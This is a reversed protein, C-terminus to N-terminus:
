EAVLLKRFYTSRINKTDLTIKLIYSGPRLSSFDSKWEIVHRGSDYSGTGSMSCYKGIVDFLDISVNYSCEALSIPIQVLPTNRNIPNPYTFGIINEKTYTVEKIYDATGYHIRFNHEGESLTLSNITRMDTLSAEKDVEIVLQKDNLGFGTNDWSITIRREGAVNGSWSYNEATKVMDKSLNGETTQRMIWDFTSVGQPMPPSMVDYKDFDETASEHMGFGALENTIVGDSIALNVTWFPENLTTRLQETRNRGGIIKKNLVPIKLSLNDVGDLRLFAGGYAGLIDTTSFTGLKFQQLTGLGDPNNNFDLVDKWSVSFNYPNGILNWGKVLELVFPTESNVKATKGEGPNIVSEEKVILWYGKGLEIEDSATLEKTTEDYEFLRWRSKKSEGLDKFVNQVTKATIDLPISIIQYKDAGKGFVLNPIRQDSGSAPYKKYVYGEDSNVQNGEKDIISFYFRLGIPDIFDNAPISYSISGSSASFTVPVSKELNEESTIGRSFFSVSRVDDIKNVTISQSVSPQGVDFFDNFEKSQIKLNIINFNSESVITQGETTISVKVPMSPAVPVLLTISTPTNSITFAELDGFKVVNNGNVSSFGSGSITVATGVAGSAPSFSTISFPLKLFENSSVVTSTGRIVSIKGTVSNPPVSVVLSTLSASKVVADVTGSESQFKVVQNTTITSFGTGFVTLDSNPLASAPSFSSVSFEGGFDESSTVSQDGITVSIKGPIVGEPVLVGISTPLSSTVQAVKGNFKVVNNEKISSFGKGTIIVSTNVSGIQPSFSNIEVPLAVFETSSSVTYGSRAVSIPGTTVGNPVTVTITTATSNAVTASVGNFKVFNESGVASFGSGNLVVTAGVNAAPVSFSLVALSSFKVVRRNFEDPVYLNGANDFSVGQPQNLQGNEAGFSGFKYLFLGSQSFVQIRHSYLDSVFLNGSASITLAYPTFFQGDANGVSGLSSIFIGASNFKQVRNNGGDAIYINGNADVAIGGPSKFSGNGTGNNGFKLLFTGANNFKQVRHNDTDAVYINGNPDITIGNVNWIQGDGQGFSAFQSKYIGASSFRQIRNNYTDAVFVDGTADIAIARPSNFQGNANGFSGFKSQFVGASNFRVVCHNRYDVVYIDGNTAVASSRPGLLQDNSDLGGWKTVFGFNVDFKQIRSNDSDAVYINGSADVAIGQSTQFQGNALGSSGFSSQNAGSSNFRQIRNNYTDAVYFNGSADVAISRPYNFQGASSGYSGVRFIFSGSSNFKQIRQNDTDAVFISGNNPDIIVGQPGRFQGDGTGNTGFKTQFTGANNFKLIRSNDTDAIYINGSLDVAIGRPSGLQGDGSGYQGGFKSKFIGSNSFRQVRNNYTDVVYVDGSADTAIGFPTNFKGDASGFGGWQLLYVGSSSFKSILNSFPDVVFVNGTPDVAVAYPHKFQGPKRPAGINSEFIQAYSWTSIFVLLFGLLSFRKLVITGISSM